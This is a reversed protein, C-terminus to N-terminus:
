KDKQAKEKPWKTTQGEIYPNKLSKGVTIVGVVRFM